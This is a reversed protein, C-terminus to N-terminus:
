YTNIGAKANEELNEFKEDTEVPHLGEGTEEATEETCAHQPSKATGSPNSILEFVLYKCDTREKVATIITPKYGIVEVKSAEYRVDNQKITTTEVIKGEAVKGKETKEIADFEESGKKTATDRKASSRRQSLLDSWDRKAGEQEATDQKIAMEKVTTPDTSKPVTTEKNPARAATNVFSSSKREDGNRREKSLPPDQRPTQYRLNSGNSAKENVLNNDIFTPDLVHDEFSVHKTTNPGRHTTEKDQVHRYMANDALGNVHDNKMRTQGLDGKRQVWPCSRLCEEKRLREKAARQLKREAASETRM